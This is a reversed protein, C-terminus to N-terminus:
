ISNQNLIQNLSSGLCIALSKPKELLCSLTALSVDTDTYARVFVRYKQDGRLEWNVYGGNLSKDGLKLQEPM